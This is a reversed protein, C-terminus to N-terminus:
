NLDLYNHQNSQRIAIQTLEVIIQGHAAPSGIKLWISDMTLIKLMSFLLFFFCDLRNNLKRHIKEGQSFFYDKTDSNPYLWILGLLNLPIM